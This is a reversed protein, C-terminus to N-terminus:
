RVIRKGIEQIDKDQFWGDYGLITWYGNLEKREYWEGITWNKMFDIWYFGSERM